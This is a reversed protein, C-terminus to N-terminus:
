PRTWVASNLECQYITATSVNHERALGAIAMRSRATELDDHGPQRHITIEEYIAGSINMM